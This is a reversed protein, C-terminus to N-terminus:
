GCCSESASDRAVASGTSCSSLHMIEVAAKTCYVHGDHLSCSKLTVWTSALWWMQVVLHCTTLVLETILRSGVCRLRLQLPMHSLLPPV